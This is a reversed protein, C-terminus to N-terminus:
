IDESSEASDPPFLDLDGREPDWEVGWGAIENVSGLQADQMLENLMSKEVTVARPGYNTDIILLPGEKSGKVRLVPGVHKM